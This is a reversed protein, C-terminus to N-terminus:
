EVRVIWYTGKSGSLSYTAETHEGVALDKPPKKYAAYASIYPNEYTVVGGFVDENTGPKVIRFKM